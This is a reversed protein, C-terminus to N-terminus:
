CGVVAILVLAVVVIAIAAILRRRAFVDAGGYHRSVGEPARAPEGGGGLLEEDGTEVRGERARARAEVAARREEASRGGGHEM